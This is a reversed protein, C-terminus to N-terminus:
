DQRLTLHFQRIGELLGQVTFEACFETLGGLRIEGGDRAEFRRNEEPNDPSAYTLAGTFPPSAQQHIQLAFYLQTGRRRFTGTAQGNAYTVTLHLQQRQEAGAAALTAAAPPHYYQRIYEVGGPGLISTPPLPQEAADLLATQPCQALATEIWQTYPEEGLSDLREQCNRCLELHREFTQSQDPSLSGAFYREFYQEGVEPDVCLFEESLLDDENMRLM